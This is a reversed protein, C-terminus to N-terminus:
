FPENEFDYDDNDPRSRDELHSGIFHYLSDLPETDLTELLHQMESISTTAAIECAARHAIWYDRAASDIEGDYPRGLLLEHAPIHKM